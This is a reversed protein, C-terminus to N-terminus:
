RRRNIYENLATGTVPLGNVRVDALPVEVWGNRVTAGFFRVDGVDDGTVIRVLLHRLTVEADRLAHLRTDNGRQWHEFYALPTRLIFYGVDDPLALQMPVGRETTFETIHERALAITALVSVCLVFALKLAISM